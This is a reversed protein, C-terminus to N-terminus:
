NVTAGNWGLQRNAASMAQAIAVFWMERASMPLSLAALAQNFVARETPNLTDHMLTDDTM